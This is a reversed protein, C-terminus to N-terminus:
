ETAGVPRSAGKKPPTMGLFVTYENEGGLTYGVFFFNEGRQTFGRGEAARLSPENEEFLFPITPTPEKNTVSEGLSAQEM